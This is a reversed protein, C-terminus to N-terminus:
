NNTSSHRHETTFHRAGSYPNKLIEVREKAIVASQSVVYDSHTLYKEIIPLSLKNGSTGLAFLTEHITINTNETKLSDEMIQVAKDTGIEGLVFGAEHRVVRCVDEKLCKAIVDLSKQNDKHTPIIAINMLQFLIQIRTNQSVTKKDQLISIYKDINNQVENEYDITQNIRDIASQASCKIEFLTSKTYPEIFKIDEKDGITGLSMLCEHKVVLSDDSELTNKLFKTTNKEPATEGLAFVAEHRVLECEDERICKYLAQLSDQDAINMLEFIAAIKICGSLNKNQLIKINELKIQNIDRVM